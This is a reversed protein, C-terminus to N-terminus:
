SSSSISAIINVESHLKDDLHKILGHEKALLLGLGSPKDHHHPNFSSHEEDVRGPSPYDAEMSVSNDEESEFPAWGLFHFPITFTIFHAM